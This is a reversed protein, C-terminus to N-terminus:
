RTSLGHKKGKEILIMTYQNSPYLFQRSNLILFLNFWGKSMHTIMDQTARRIARIFDLKGPIIYREYAIVCIEELAVQIKKEESLELFKSELCLASGPEKLISKYLPEVHFKFIEHLDDHQYKRSVNDKFFDEAKKDFSFTKGSHIREWAKFLSDYFAKDLQCGKDQLFHIDKMHKVWNLNWAAHSVKITFLFDPDVYRPDQNHEKLYEFEPIWYHEVKPSNRKAKDTIIDLDKPTRPYDPYWHKIATSGYILRM